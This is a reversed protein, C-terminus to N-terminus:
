VEFLGILMVAALIEISKTKIPDSLASRIRQLAKGYLVFAEKMWHHASGANALSAIGSAIIVMALPGSPGCKLYLRPLYEHHGRATVLQNNMGPTTHVYLHFFFAIARDNLSSTQDALSVTPQQVEM